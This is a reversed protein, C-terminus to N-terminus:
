RRATSPGHESDWSGDAAQRDALERSKRAYWRQWTAMDGHFLAQSLYYNFYAVHNPMDWVDERRLRALGAVFEPRERQRMLAMALVPIAGRPSLQPSNAPTYNFSGDTALCTLMFDLGSRLAGEPITLGANRAALLAVMQAGTVTIDADRSDPTYRWAGMANAQQARLILDVARQLAPGVTDKRVVGYAEALALTAFGHNYMTSGIMGTAADQMSLIFDIQRNVTAAHPGAIPDDGHALFALLSLGTVGPQAGYVDNWGGFADQTRALYELGRRYAHEVHPPVTEAEVVTFTQAAGPVAALCATLASVLRRAAQAKRRRVNWPM